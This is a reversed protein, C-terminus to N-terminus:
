QRELIPSFSNFDKIDIVIEDNDVYIEQSDVSEYDCNEEDM